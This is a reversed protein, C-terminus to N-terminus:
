RACPEVPGAWERTARYLPFVAWLEAEALSSLVGPHLGIVVLRGHRARLREDCRALAEFLGPDGSAVASLDVAVFATGPPDAAAALQEALEAVSATDVVGAVTVLAGHTASVVCCGSM